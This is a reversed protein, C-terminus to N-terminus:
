TLDKPVFSKSIIMMNTVILIYYHIYFQLVVLLETV